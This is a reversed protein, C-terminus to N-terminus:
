KKNKKKKHRRRIISLRIYIVGAIMVYIILVIIRNILNKKQNEQIIKAEFEEAEKRQLEYSDDRILNNSSSEELKALLVSRDYTGVGYCTSLLILKSNSDVDIEKKYIASELFAQLLEENHENTYKQLKYAISKNADVINFTFIKLDFVGHDTYLKGALHKNFFEEEQFKKIDSFMLNKAMNHGYIVFYDDDLSRSNRYDLFISGAPSYDGKYNTKLYSTNDEGALIPYDINTDNVRIWGVIDPNIKKLDDLSFKNGFSNEGQVSPKYKLIDDTMETDEYVSHVDYLAYFSFAMVLIFFTFVIFNLVHDIFKVVKM